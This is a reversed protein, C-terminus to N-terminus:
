RLSAEEKIPHRANTGNTFSSITNAFSKTMNSAKDLYAYTFGFETASVADSEQYNKVNVIGNMTIVCADGAKPMYGPKPLEPMVLPLLTNCDLINSFIGSDQNSTNELSLVWEVADYGEYAKGMVKVAIGDDVEYVAGNVAALKYQKKGYRFSFEAKM